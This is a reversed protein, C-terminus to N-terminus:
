MLLWSRAPRIQFREGISVAEDFDIERVLKSVTDELPSVWSRVEHMPPEFLWDGFMM